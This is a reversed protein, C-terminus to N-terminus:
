SPSVGDLRGGSASSGTEVALGAGLWASTGGVVDRLDKFGRRELLSAAAASRYGGACIVATPRAPDLRDHEQELRDLPLSLAGPVHGSAFEAPRRVDVVVLRPSEELQARLEDVTVQPLTALPRCAANWALVGGDLYGSVRDLGVRALRTAAEAASAADDAVVLLPGDAPLLAGAWSAFQGQLGVSV